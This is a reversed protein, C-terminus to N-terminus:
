NSLRERLMGALFSKLQEYGDANDSYEVIRFRNLDFPIDHIDQTLLVFKKGITHTIGLEYFVNANRDTLDAIVVEASLIGKWIDEMIDSGFLDDARQSHAGVDKCVDQIMRWIRQSWPTKFPMLVFVLGKEVPYDRGKFLPRITISESPSVRMEQWLHLNDKFPNPLISLRSSEPRPKRYEPMYDDYDIYLVDYNRKTAYSVAVAASAVQVSMTKKGGTLEIAISKSGNLKRLALNFARFIDDQNQDDHLFRISEIKEVYSPLYKKITGILNETEKTHMILISKPEILHATLVVTEPTFGLLSVLGEWKVENSMRTRMMPLIAPMIKEFYYAEAATNDRADLLKTWNAFRTSYDLPLLASNTNIM